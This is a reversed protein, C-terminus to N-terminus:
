RHHHSRQLRAGGVDAGAGRGAYGQIFSVLYRTAHPLTAAAQEIVAVAQDIELAERASEPKEGAKINFIASPVSYGEELSDRLMKVLIRQGRLM